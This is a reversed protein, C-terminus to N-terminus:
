EEQPWCGGDRVDWSCAEALASQEDGDDEADLQQCVLFEVGDAIVRRFRHDVTTATIATTGTSREQPDATPGHFRTQRRQHLRETELRTSQDHSHKYPAYSYHRITPYQLGVFIREHPFRRRQETIGTGLYIM